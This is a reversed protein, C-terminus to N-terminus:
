KRTDRHTNRHLGSSLKADGSTFDRTITLWGAQTGLGGFSCRVGELWRGLGPIIHKYFQM